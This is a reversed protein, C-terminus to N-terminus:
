LRAPAGRSLLWAAAFLGLAHYMQYRAGTEFVALREPELRARLAHAGFAGAAVAIFANLAGLAAVWRDSVLLVGGAGRGPAGAGVAERAPGAGLFLSVDRSRPARRRASDAGLEGEARRAPHRVGADGRPLRAGDRERDAPDAGSLDVVHAF